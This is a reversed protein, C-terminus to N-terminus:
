VRRTREFYAGHQHRHPLAMPEWFEELLARDRADSGSRIAADSIAARQREAAIAARNPAALARWSEHARSLADGGRHAARWRADDIQAPFAGRDVTPLVVAILEHIGHWAACRGCLAFADADEYGADDGFPM